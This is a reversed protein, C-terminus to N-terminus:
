RPTELSTGTPDSTVGLPTRLSAWAVATSLSGIVATLLLMTLKLGIQDTTMGVALVAFSMAAYGILYFTSLIESRKDAPAIRNMLAASGVFAAGYGLAAIVTGLIFLTGSTMSFAIVCLVLGATIALPGVILSRRPSYRRAAVQMVGGCLQFGVLVLGALARNKVQLLDVALTPGLAAFVAGIVWAISVACAAILFPRSISRPVSLRQLHYDRWRFHKFNKEPAPWPVWAVAAAALVALLSVIVFPSVLPWLQLHIMLATLAPGIAAGITLAVTGIMAARDRDGEPDIEILAANAAGALAGTGIGALIRGAILWALNQALCFVAGGIAVVLLAPIMVPRRGIQDSLPGVGFMATIVGIMYVAYICTLATASFGWRQQYVGYLPSPANSSLIAVSIALAVASTARYDHAKTEPLSTASLTRAM